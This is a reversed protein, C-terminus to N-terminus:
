VHGEIWLKLFIQTIVLWWQQGDPSLVVRREDGSSGIGELTIHGIGLNVKDGAAVEGELAMMHLNCMQHLFEQLSYQLARM